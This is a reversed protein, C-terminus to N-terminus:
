YRFDFFNKGFIFFFVFLYFLVTVCLPTVTGFRHLMIDPDFATSATPLM